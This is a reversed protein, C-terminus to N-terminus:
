TSLAASSSAEGRRVYVHKFQPVLHVHPPPNLPSTSDSPTFLNNPPTSTTMPSIEKKQSNYTPQIPTVQAVHVEENTPMIPPAEEETFLQQTTYVEDDSSSTEIDVEADAMKTLM